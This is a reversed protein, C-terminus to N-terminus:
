EDSDEEGSDEEKDHCPLPVGAIHSKIVRHGNKSNTFYQQLIKPDKAIDELENKSRIRIMFSFM